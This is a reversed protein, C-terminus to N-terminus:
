EESKLFRDLYEDLTMYEDTMSRKGYVYGSKTLEDYYLDSFPEMVYWTTDNAFRFVFHPHAEWKWAFNLLAEQEEYKIANTRDQGRGAYKQEQAFRNGNVTYFVDPLDSTSGGGSAALRMADHKKGREQWQNVFSREQNSGKGM